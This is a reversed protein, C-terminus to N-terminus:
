SSLRSRASSRAARSASRGGAADASMAHQHGPRGVAVAESLLVHHEVCQWWAWLRGTLVSAGRVVRVLYLVLYWPSRLGHYRARHWGLGAAQEVTGRINEKQLPRPIVPLRKIDPQRHYRLVGAAPAALDAPHAETARLHLVQGNRTDETQDTSM